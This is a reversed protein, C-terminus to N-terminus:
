APTVDRRPGRETRAQAPQTVLSAQADAVLLPKDKPGEIQDLSTKEVGLTYETGEVTFSITPVSCVPIVLQRIFPKLWGTFLQSCFSIISEEVEELEPPVGTAHPVIALSHIDLVRLKVEQHDVWATMTVDATAKLGIELSADISSCKAKVKATAEAKITCRVASGKGPKIDFQATTLGAKLTATLTLKCVKIDLTKQGSLEETVFTQFLADAIHNLLTNDAAFFPKGAPWHGATGYAYPLGTSALASYVMLFGNDALLAPGPTMKVGAWDIPPIRIGALLEHNLLRALPAALWRNALATLSPDSPIDIVLEDIHFHLTGDPDVNARALGAISGMAHQSAGGEAQVSVTLAPFSMGFAAVGKDTPYINSTFSVTPAAAIDYGISAIGDSGVEFSGSFIAPYVAEYLQALIANAAAQDTGTISDYGQKDAMHYGRNFFAAHDRRPM